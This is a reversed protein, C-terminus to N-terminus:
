PRVGRHSFRMGTAGRSFPFLFAHMLKGFPFWLLLLEFAILHVALPGPFVVHDRAITNVSAETVVAMGTILPLFTLAWSLWDDANGILRLVPDNLRVLLAGIMSLITVGAALYMVADPLAPWGLGTYRRVFEIHPGYGFFILGLGIHMVYANLGRLFHGSGMARGPHLGRWVHGLAGVWPAPAGARAASLDPMPPRRWLGWLRWAVGLTFVLAAVALLPGRAVDLLNM